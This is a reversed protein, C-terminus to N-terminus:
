PCFTDPSLPPLRTRPGISTFKTDIIIPICHLRTITGTLTAITVMKLLTFGLPVSFVPSSVSSCDEDEDSSVTQTESTSIESM